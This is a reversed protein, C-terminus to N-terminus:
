HCLRHVIANLLAERLAEEPYDRIDIRELGCFEARTRNFQNLYSYAEELQELLSGTLEKRDRFVSKRSGDFVAMKITPVCQDSLLMGLNSYTGDKSIINLTCMQKEGFILEKKGFYAATKEFNQKQNLSRANEYCDGSTERIM